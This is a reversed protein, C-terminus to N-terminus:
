QNNEMGDAEEPALWSSLDRNLLAALREVDERYYAGLAIREERSLHSRKNGANVTQMLTHIPKLLRVLATFRGKNLSEALSPAMSNIVRNVAASRPPLYTNRNSSRRAGAPATPDAGVFTYLERLFEPRKMDETLFVKVRDFNDLYAKTARFSMGVGALDFVWAYGKEVRERSLAFADAFKKSDSGLRLIHHYMSFVRDVPNRLLILIRPEKQRTREYTKKINAISREYYYFYDNSIDGKIGHEKGTFLVAYEDINRPGENQYKAAAGGRFTRPMQSFYRCEKIDPIFIERHSALHDFLTTTGSKAAGVVIFDPLTTMIRKRIAKGSKQETFDVPSM